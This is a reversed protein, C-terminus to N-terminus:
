ELNGEMANRYKDTLTEMGWVILKAPIGPNPHSISAKGFSNKIHLKALIFGVYVPISTFHYQIARLVRDLPWKNNEKQSLWMSFSEYGETSMKPKIQKKTFNKSMAFGAGYKKRGFIKGDVGASELIRRCIPRDYDTGLTWPKMEPLNSVKQISQVATSAYLPLPLVVYGKILANESFSLNATYFDYGSRKSEPNVNGTKDWIYSGSTGISVIRGAFDDEFASFQLYVGVDGCVVYEADKCGQKHIYDHHGREIINSYGLQKAIEVASDDDYFGGKFTMLTDCGIHKLVAACASSDYGSSATASMEYKHGRNSDLGNKRIRACVGCISEYYDNFDVFDRHIPKPIVDTKLDSSVGVDACFIQNFCKGNALPIERTYEKTGWLISCLLKEYQDCNKDISEGSVALLLPISNSFFIAPDKELYCIRQREHTPSYVVVKDGVIKAGTACFFEASAFDAESFEGDWVGSVFWNEKTEVMSGCYVDVEASDKRIIMAWGLKPFRDLPHYRFEFAM